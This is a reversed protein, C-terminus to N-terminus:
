RGPPRVRASIAGAAASVEEVRRVLAKRQPRVFAREEDSLGELPLNDLSEFLRTFYEQHVYDSGSVQKEYGALQTAAKDIAALVADLERSHGSGGGAADAAANAAAEAAAAAAADVMLVRDRDFVHQEALTMEDALVAGHAQLQQRERPWAGNTQKAVKAKLDAVTATGAIVVAVRQPPSESYVLIHM